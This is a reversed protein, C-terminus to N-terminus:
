LSLYQMLKILYIYMSEVLVLSTVFAVVFDVKYIKHIGMLFMGYSAVGTIIITLLSLLTGISPITNFFISLLFGFTAIFSTYGVILLSHKYKGKGGMIDVFLNLLYGIFLFSLFSISFGGLAIKINDSLLPNIQERIYYYDTIIALVLSSLIIALVGENIDRKSNREMEKVPNSILNLIDM